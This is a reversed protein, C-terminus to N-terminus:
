AMYKGPHGLFPLFSVESEGAERSFPEPYTRLWLAPPSNYALSNWCLGAAGPWARLLCRTERETHSLLESLTEGSEMDKRESPRRPLATSSPGGAEQSHCCRLSNNSM